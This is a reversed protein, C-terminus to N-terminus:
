RQRTALAASVASWGAFGGAAAAIGPRTDAMTWADSVDALARLTFAARDARTVLLTGSVLDRVGLLRATRPSVGMKAALSAPALLGWGAFFLTTAGIAISSTRVFHDATM